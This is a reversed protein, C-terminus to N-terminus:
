GSSGMVEMCKAKMDEDSMGGAMMGEGSMSSESAMSDDMMKDDSMSDDSKMSDDSAMSGKEMTEGEMMGGAATYGKSECAALFEERTMGGYEDSMSDQAGAPMAVAMALGAGFLCTLLTERTTM